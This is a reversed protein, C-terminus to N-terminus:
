NKSIIVKNKILLLNCLLRKKGEDNLNPYKEGIKEDSLCMSLKNTSIQKDFSNVYNLIEELDSNGGIFFKKGNTTEYIIMPWTSYSGITDKLMHKTSNKDIENNPVTIIEVSLNKNKSEDILNKLGNLVIRSNNSYHCGERCYAIIKGM